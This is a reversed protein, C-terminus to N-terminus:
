VKDHSSCYLATTSVYLDMKCRLTVFFPACEGWIVKFVYFFACFDDKKKFINACIFFQVYSQVRLKPYGRHGM